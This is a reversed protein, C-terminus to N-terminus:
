KPARSLKVGVSAILALLADTVATPDILMQFHGGAIEGTPWGLSKARATIPAYFGNPVFALYGSRAREWGLPTPYRERYVGIPLRRAAAALAARRDSDSIGVLQWTAEDRWMNPGFRGEELVPPSPFSDLWCAGAAPLSADVYVYAAVEGLVEAIFPLVPGIGSHGVLVTPGARGSCFTAVAEACHCWFGTAQDAVEALSPVFTAFGRRDFEAAVAGWTERGVLPSHVFVLSGATVAM